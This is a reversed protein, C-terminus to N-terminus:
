PQEEFLDALLRGFAGSGEDSHVRRPGVPSVRATLDVSETAGGGCTDCGETYAYTEVEVDGVPPQGMRQEFVRRLAAQYQSTATGSM